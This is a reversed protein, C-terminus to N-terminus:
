ILDELAKNLSNILKINRTYDMRKPGIISIFAGENPSIMISSCILSLNKARPLPIEKGIYIHMGQSDLAKIKEEFNDLFNLFNFVFDKDVFEPEKAIEEWGEKWSVDNNFFQVIALGSSTNALFKALNGAMRFRDNIKEKLIEEIENEMLNEKDGSEAVLSDVFFRYAKDTPIRGASTHPQELFGSKILSQMEIRIASPCLGFDYKKSLFDSSIPEATKIYERILAKLIVNQRDSIM